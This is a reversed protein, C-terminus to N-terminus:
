RQIFIDVLEDMTYGRSIILENNDIGVANMIDKTIEGMIEPNYETLQDNMYGNDYVESNIMLLSTRQEFNINTLDIWRIQENVLTKWIVRKEIPDYVVSRRTDDLKVQDLISFAYDAIKNEKNLKYDRILSATKIFRGYSDNNNAIDVSGGFLEDMPLTNLAQEYTTNTIIAFEQQVYIKPTGDPFEIIANNGLRDAIIFHWNEGDPRMDNLHLVVEDVTEFNDLQYQMWQGCSIGPRGDDEPYVSTLNAQDIILGVENMGGEILDPGLYTFTVSGYKSVWSQTKRVDTKVAPLAGKWHIVTKKVGRKNILLLSPLPKDWGLNQGLIVKSDKKIVFVTCAKIQKHFSILIIVILLSNILTSKKM